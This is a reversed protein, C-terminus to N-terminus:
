VCELSNADALVECDGAITCHQGLQLTKDPGIGPGFFGDNFGLTAAVSSSMPPSLASLVTFYSSGFGAGARVSEELVLLIGLVPHKLLTNVELHGKIGRRCYDCTNNM